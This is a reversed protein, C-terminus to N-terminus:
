RYVGALMLKLVALDSTNVFGDEDVDCNIADETVNGSLFLKLTALDASNSVGNNDVDGKVHTLVKVICDSGKIIVANGSNEANVRISINKEGELSANFTIKAICGDEDIVSTSEVTIVGDAYSATGIAGNEVAKIEIGDPMDLVIEAKTFGKNDSIMLDVTVSEGKKASADEFYVTGKGFINGAGIESDDENVTYASVSISLTLFVAVALIGCILKKVIVGNKRKCKSRLNLM